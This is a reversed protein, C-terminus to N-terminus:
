ASTAPLVITVTTGVDPESEVAITGGHANIIGYAVSMGLGTGVGAAKTSYFPEFVRRTIEATMGAGTDIATIRVTDGERMTRLTLTRQATTQM